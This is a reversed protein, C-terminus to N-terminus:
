RGSMDTYEKGSGNGWGKGQELNSRLYEYTYKIGWELTVKEVTGFCKEYRSVDLVNIPVDAKRCQTYNVCVKENLVHEILFILENISHGTGSGVNFVRYEGNYGSIKLIAEVVDDIFIFDRVVNGDGYVTLPEKKLVNYVFTTVVGQVGNPVQFRGYPNSLRIIQYNLGYMYNYLYLLKEITVKQLGYASIPNTMTDEKFPLHKELGYVTGGSSLFVIKKVKSKVCADLLSATVAVNDILGQSIHNNSTDPITTSILHYVIDINWTLVDFETQRCFDGSIIKHNKSMNDSLLAVLETTNKDFLILKNEKNKLLTCVLNKGIFGGAGLVLYNM